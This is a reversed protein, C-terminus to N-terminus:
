QQRLASTESVFRKVMVMLKKSITPLQTLESHLFNYKLIIDSRSITSEADNCVTEEANCLRPADKLMGRPQKECFFYSPNQGNRSFYVDEGGSPQAYVKYGGENVPGSEFHRGRVGKLRTDSIDGMQLTVVTTKQYGVGYPAQLNLELLSLPINLAVLDRDPRSPEMREALILERPINLKCDGISVTEIGGPGEARASALSNGSIISLVLYYAFKRLRSRRHHERGCSGGRGLRNRLDDILMEDYRSGLANHKWSTSAPTQQVQSTQTQWTLFFIM